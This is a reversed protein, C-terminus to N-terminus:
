DQALPIRITFEAGQGLGQSFAHVTGGHLDVLRRVLALGIGLGGQSRNLSRDIQTFLEFVRPLMEPPIGIGTDCIKILLEDGDRCAALEVTGGAETYKAANNLLNSLVQAMRVRDVRIPMQPDPIHVKFTLRAKEIQPLSLELASDIVDKLPLTERMLQLKGRTIRSVDLLDDILRVMQIVQREMMDRAREVATPSAAALRMIELANRIPALPNRLEHALTALFEDKRKDAERLAAEARTREAIEKHLNANVQELERTRVRVLRELEAESRKQLLAHRISRELLIADLRGKELYDAAGGEIARRDIEWEGQGTLLIVPATPNLTRVEALLELGDHAGLRFDLLYVDHTGDRVAALGAEYTSVWALSFPQGPLDALLDRTLLYDEEDDDILLVRVSSEGTANMSM